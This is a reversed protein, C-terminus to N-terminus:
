IKRDIYFLPEDHEDHEYTYSVTLSEMPNYLDLIIFM